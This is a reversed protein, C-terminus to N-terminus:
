VSFRNLTSIYIDEKIGSTLFVRKLTFISGCFVKHLRFFLYFPPTNMILASIKDSGCSIRYGENVASIM